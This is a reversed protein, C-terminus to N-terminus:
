GHLNMSNVHMSLDLFVGSYTDNDDDTGGGCGRKLYHRKKDV